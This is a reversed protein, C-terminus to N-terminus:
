HALIKKLHDKNKLIDHLLSPDTKVIEDWTFWKCEIIFDGNQNENQLQVEIPADNGREVFYFHEIAHLPNSIHEHVMFYDGVHIDLNLEEKLERATASKLTEGFEVGGGPPIWLHGLPGIGAMKILLVSRKEVLLGCVRVRNKGGYVKNVSEQDM